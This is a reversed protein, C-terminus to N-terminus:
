DVFFSDFLKVSVRRSCTAKRASRCFDETGLVPDNLSGVHRRDKVSTASVALDERIPTLKRPVRVGSPPAIGYAVPLSVRQHHLRGSEVIPTPQVERTVWVRFLQTHGLTELAAVESVHLELHSQLIGFGEGLWKRNSQAYVENRIGLHQLVHTILVFPIGNV